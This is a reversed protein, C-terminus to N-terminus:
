ILKNLLHINTVEDSCNNDIDTTMLSFQFVFWGPQLLPFSKLLLVELGGWYVPAYNHSTLTDGWGMIYSIVQPASLEMEQGVSQFCRFLLLRAREQIDETVRFQLQHYMVAKGLLASLNYHSAQAKM